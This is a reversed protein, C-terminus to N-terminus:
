PNPRLNTEKEDEEKQRERAQRERGEASVIGAEEDEVYLPFCLLKDKREKEEGDGEDGGERMSADRV